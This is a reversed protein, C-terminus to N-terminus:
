VREVMVNQFSIKWHLGNKSFYEVKGKLQYDILGFLNQLGLGGQKRLDRSANIGIGNDSIELYIIDNQDKSLRIKAEGTKNQPFAHLIINSVLEEVVQSLPIAVDITVIIEELDLSFIIKKDERWHSRKIVNVIDQILDGLNLRSLHQADYLKQHVLAMAKIRNIIEKYYFQLHADQSMKAQMNMLSIIVQMNNKTRHYLERILLEKENLNQKLMNEAQKRETIDRCVCFILKQGNFWAANTSIEVDYTSGDRRKHKTEFHDGKEDVNRVMELTQEPPYLFGWDLVTLRGMYEYPYGLMEAFKRNAEYVRGNQDLIVIGDRSQEMLIRRRSVEIRLAEESIKRETIDRMTDMVYMPENKENKILSFNLEVMLTSGDSRLVEAEINNILGEKLLLPMMNMMREKESDKLLEFVNKGLLKEASDYRLLDLKRKNVFLIKGELDHLCIGDNSSEVLVRFKEESQRLEQLATEKDKKAEYMGMVESVAFPLRRIKEKFVYDDAGAKMCAVATEENMSGTLMIFPFYETKSRTIKLATMGDFSPMAYDSIILDPQFEQLAKRFDEENDVSISSYTIDEKNLERQAIEVDTPLDEVFLIKIKKM